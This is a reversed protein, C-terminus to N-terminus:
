SLEWQYLKAGVVNIAKKIADTHNLTSKQNAAITTDQLWHGYQSVLRSNQVHQLLYANEVPINNITQQWKLHNFGIEDKDDSMLRKLKVKVANVTDKYMLAEGKVFAPAADRILSYDV